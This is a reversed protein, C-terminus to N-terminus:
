RIFRSRTPITPIHIAEPLTIFMEGTGELLWVHNVGIVAQLALAVVKPLPTKGLEWDSLANQSISLYEAVEVQRLNRLKRVQRLRKGIEPPTSSM